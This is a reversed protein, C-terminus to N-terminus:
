PAFVGAIDVGAIGAAVDGFVEAEEGAFVVCVGDVIGAFQVHIQFQVQEAPAGPLAGFTDGGAPEFQFQVQFQCGHAADSGAGTACGGGAGTTCGGGPGTTCGGGSGTTAGGVISGTTTGSMGVGGISRGATLTGATGAAGVGGSVGAIWSGDTWSGGGGATTGAVIGATSTGNTSAGATGVTTMAGGATANGGIGAIVSGVTSGTLTIGGASCDDAPRYGTAGLSTPSSIEIRSRGAAGGRADPTSAAATDRAGDEVSAGVATSRVRASGAPRVSSAEPPPARLTSVPWWSAGGIGAGCGVDDPPNDPPKEPPTPTAKSRIAASVAAKWM